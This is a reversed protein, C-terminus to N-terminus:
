AKPQSNSETQVVIVHSNEVNFPLCVAFFYIQCKTEPLFICTMSPDFFPWTATQCNQLAPFTKMFIEKSMFDSYARQCKLEHFGRHLEKCKLYHSSKNFTPLNWFIQNGVHGAVFKCIRIFNFVGMFSATSIKSFKLFLSLIKAMWIRGVFTFSRLFLTFIRKKKENAFYGPVSFITSSENERYKKKGRKRRRKETWNPELVRDETLANGNKGLVLRFKYSSCM